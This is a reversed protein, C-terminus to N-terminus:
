PIYDGISSNIYNNVFDNATLNNVGTFSEKMDKSGSETFEVNKQTNDNKSNKKKKIIIVIVIIVAVIVAVCVVFLAVLLWKSKKWGLKDAITDLFGKTTEVQANENVNLPQNTNEM